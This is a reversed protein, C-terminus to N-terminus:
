VRADDPVRPLHRLAESGIVASANIAVKAPQESSSGIGGPGFLLGGTALTSAL